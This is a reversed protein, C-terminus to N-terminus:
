GCYVRYKAISIAPQAATWNLEITTNTYGGSLVPVSTVVSPKTPGENGAVDMASVLYYYSAGTGAAGADTFSNGAPTGIRNTGGARDPTFNPTTGRYVRY